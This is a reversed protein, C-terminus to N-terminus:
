FWSHIWTGIVQYLVYCKSSNMWVEYIYLEDDNEFETSTQNFKNYYTNHVDLLDSKKIFSSEAQKLNQYVKNLWTNDIGSWTGVTLGDIFKFPMSMVLEKTPDFTYTDKKFLNTKDYTDM